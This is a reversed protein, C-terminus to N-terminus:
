QPQGRRRQAPNQNQQEGQQGQSQQGGKQAAGPQLPKGGPWPQGLAKSLAAQLKDSTLQGRVEHVQVVTDPKAAEDLARVTDVISDMLEARSCVILSNSVEDVGVSLIGAFGIVVAGEGNEANRKIDGFVYGKSTSIATQKGEKDQFERDKSSLLDRYVDKLSAAIDSARSYKVQIVKTKRPLFDEAVRPQDYMQIIEKITRLQSPSANAVVVTNTFDDDIFRLPRRKGLTLSGQKPKTQVSRGWWDRISEGDEAMEDEFYVKLNYVVDSAYVHRLKFYHYEAQRPSLQEILDQLQDLAATDESALILQGESNVTIKIPAPATKAADEADEAPEQESAMQALMFRGRSTRTLKDDSTETAEEAPEQQPPQEQAPEVQIQLENEGPWTAKLQELLRQLDDAGRSELRRVKRNDGFSGDANQSLKSILNHVEALEDESAWLLLRNNEVDPLVRFGKNTLDEKKEQDRRGWYWPFSNDEEEEEEGVVLAMISGAVQDAPLNPPLWIVEPRRGSGDLKGIMRLIKAHDGATAYAFITKSGSDSQLQTLPDLDGIDQLAKIVAEAGATVTKYKEMTLLGSGSGAPEGEGIDLLKITRDVLPMLEPPANVLLSNQQRNVAIFVQPGEQQLLKTVDKGKQQMQMVMQMRQQEIQLETPTKRASPDLGLIIMIQDAVYDARRFRIQYERPKLDSTAALQESYLLDRVSRQNAVADIVLLRKTALLPTVKANPSLLLKVDEAAKAPDMAVPLEFRVRVFESPAYDELDDPEVRPVLSPDLKDVRVATLSEGQLILAFGRALLHRSLLDHAEKLTYKRRTTLNLYDAPLEQWDFSYGAADAYDQLVDAWPQGFYNFQVRGEADPQLKVRNPDRQPPETPRKVTKLEDEKKKEEEPKKEDKNEEAPKKEDPPQQNQQMDRMGRSRERFEKMQAESVPRQAFLSSDVLLAGCVSVVLWLLLRGPTLLSQLTNM